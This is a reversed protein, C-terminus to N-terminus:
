ISSPAHSIRNMEEAIVPLSFFFTSGQGYISNFGIQGRQLEVLKKTIYLGLGTGREIQVQEEYARFFQSFIWKQDETAIGIGTDQVSIRVENDFLRASVTIDGRVPSYKSANSILNTLIQSLRHADACVMPLDDAMELFLNQQKNHIQQDLLRTVEKIIPCLAVETVVLKFQGIEMRTIDDLELTLSHIRESSARIVQLYSEQQESLKGGLGRLLIDTYSQVATLPNKLEHSVMAVFNSKALNAAQVAQYLQANHLAIAAHTTLRHLFDITETSCNETLELILFDRIIHNRQIPCILRHSANPHWSVDQTIPQQVEDVWSQDIGLRALPIEHEFSPDTGVTASVRFQNDVISGLVGAVANTKEQAYRLTIRAVEERDLTTNLEQDIQRLLNSEALHLQERDRFRKKELSADIRAWLLESQIPKALYDEAGLKICRIVSNIDDLASMIVVPTMDNESRLQQLVQFGDMKPMMIDLLILDFRDQRHLSLAELGHRASSVQHGRWELRAVLMERIFEDDDVVLIKSDNLIM